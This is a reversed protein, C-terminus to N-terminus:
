LKIIEIQNFRDLSLRYPCILWLVLTMNETFVEELKFDLSLWGNPSEEVEFYHSWIFNERFSDVTLTRGCLNNNLRNTSDLWKVMPITTRDKECKIPYGNVSQGNLTINFETVGFQRFGTITKEKTGDIASTAIIGAFMYIPLNGGQIGDVRLVKQNEDLPRTTVVFDEYEYILPTHQITDYLARLDPSSIYETVCHCENIIWPGEKKLKDDSGSGTFDLVSFSKPARDFNLRLEVNKALPDMSGLFGFDPIYSFDYIRYNVNDRTVQVYGDRRCIELDGKIHQKDTRVEDGNYNRQDFWGECNLSSRLQNESYNGLKM